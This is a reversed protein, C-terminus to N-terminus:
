DPRKSVTKQLSVDVVSIYVIRKTPLTLHTFPVPLPPVRVGAEDCRRLAPRLHDKISAIELVPCGPPQGALRALVEPVVTLPVAVLVADFTQDRPVEELSGYVAASAGRPDVGVVQHGMGHLLESWWRGMGGAAGLVLLRKGGRARLRVGERHQREVSGHIIAGFIREMVGPSVGCEQAMDRARQLVRAEVDRVVIPQGREAKIRGVAAALELRRRLLDALERDVDAIDRRLTELERDM